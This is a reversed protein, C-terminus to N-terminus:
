SQSIHNTIGKIKEEFHLDPPYEKESDLKIGHLIKYKLRKYSILLIIVLLILITVACALVGSIIWCYEMKNDKRGVKFEGKKKLRNNL